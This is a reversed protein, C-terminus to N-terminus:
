YGELYEVSAVDNQSIDRASVDEPRVVGFPPDHKDVTVTESNTAGGCDIKGLLGGVPFVWLHNLRLGGVLAVDVFKAKSGVPGQPCGCSISGWFSDAGNLDWVTSWTLDM